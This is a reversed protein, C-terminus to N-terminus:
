FSILFTVTDSYSGAVLSGVTQGSTAPDYYFKVSATQETLGSQYGSAAVGNIGIETNDTKTLKYKLFNGNGDAMRRSGSDPNLGGDITITSSQWYSCLYKMSMTTILTKNVLDRTIGTTTYSLTPNQTVKCEPAMVVTVPADVYDTAAFAAVSSLLLGAMLFKLKNM